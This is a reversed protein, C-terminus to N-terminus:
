NTGGTNSKEQLQKLRLMLREDDKTILKEANALHERAATLDKKGLYAEALTLEDDGTPPGGIQIVHGMDAIAEDFRGLQTLVYGRFRIFDPREEVAIAKTVRDQAEPYRAPDYALLTAVRFLVDVDREHQQLYRDGLSIAMALNGLRAQVEIQGLVAPGYDQIYMTATVFATSAAKLDAGEGEALIVRGLFVWLEPRKSNEQKEHIFAEM